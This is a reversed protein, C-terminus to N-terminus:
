SFVTARTELWRQMDSEIQSLTILQANHKKALTQAASTYARRAFFAYHVRWTVSGPLVKETKDILTQIVNQNVPKQGWKCEGLLIQKTRWSIAVVDVQAEKSWFSGVREPLFPLEGLDSIIRVWERSLEEFTHTGIFDLLHDHLLATTQQTRGQEIDGLNPFLFRFYFRLYPDVIVYRGRRSQEPRRRTAPVIREVYGMEQLISLYKNINSRAIGAYTAIATLQHNGAAIANMIAMYNRPETLQERLLFVADTLMVNLPTVVRQQLNQLINREDDFQEIYAPIGGAMTFVAVRQEANYNPLFGALAGFSLPQLKLRATARGYLPAHYDLAARQIIGALSGTLILFINSQKLQHDWARQILSPVESNAQMVYTIEDLVVVLRRTQTARSLEAFVADWSGYSFTSSNPTNPHLFQFLKQSVERLQNVASTQSAMWYFYSDPLINAWHTVLRTKGVRRRGYLILLQAGKRHYLDTLLQLEMERSVFNM